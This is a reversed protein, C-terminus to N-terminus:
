TPSPLIVNAREIVFVWVLAFKQGRRRAAGYHM